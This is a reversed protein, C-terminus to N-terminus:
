CGRKLFGLMWELLCLAFSLPPDYDDADCLSINGHVYQSFYALAEEGMKIDLMGYMEQWSYGDEKQPLDFRKYKWNRAEILQDIEASHAQYLALRQIAEVSSRLCNEANAKAKEAQQKLADYVSRSMKGDYRMSHRRALSLRTSVGDIVYLYHRGNRRRHM